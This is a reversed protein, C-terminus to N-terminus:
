LLRKAEKEPKWRPPKTIECERRSNRRANPNEFTSSESWLESPESETKGMYYKYPM